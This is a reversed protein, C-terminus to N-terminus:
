PQQDFFLYVAAIKGDRAVIIDTGAYAPPEGPRGSVWQIRGATEHLQEPPRVVTYRFDPHTNRIIGAINAIEDRGRHISDQEYFVADEAFIEDIAKRRRDADGEGFVDHLNRTMLTTIDHAM